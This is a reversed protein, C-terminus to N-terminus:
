NPLPWPALCGWPCMWSWLGAQPGLAGPWHDSTDACLETQVPQVLVLGPGPVHCQTGILPWPWALVRVQVQERVPVKVQVQVRMPVKVQVQERVPVGVPMCLPGLAGPFLGTSLLM